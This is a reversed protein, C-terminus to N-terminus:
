ATHAFDVPQRGPSGGTRSSATVMEALAIHAWYRLILKAVAAPIGAATAADLTSVAGAHQRSEQKTEVMRSRFTEPFYEQTEQFIRTVGRFRYTSWDGRGDLNLSCHVNTEKSEPGFAM